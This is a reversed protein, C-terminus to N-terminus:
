IKMSKPPGEPDMKPDNPSGFFHFLTGFHADMGAYGNPYWKPVMKTDNQYRKPLMKTGNQPAM